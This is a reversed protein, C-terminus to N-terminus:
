LSCGMFLVSPFKVISVHSKLNDPVFGGQASRESSLSINDHALNHHVPQQCDALAVVAGHDIMNVGIVPQLEHVQYASIM